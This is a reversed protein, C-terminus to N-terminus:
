DVMGRARTSRSDTPDWRATDALVGGLDRPLSMHPWPMLSRKEMTVFIAAAPLRRRGIEEGYIGRRLEM